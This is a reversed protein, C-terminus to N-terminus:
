IARKTSTKVWTLTQKKYSEQELKREKREMEWESAREDFLFIFECLILKNLNKKHKM